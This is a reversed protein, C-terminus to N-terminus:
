LLSTMLINISGTRFLLICSYSVQLHLELERLIISQMGTNINVDPLEAKKPCGHQPKDIQSNSSAMNVVSKAMKTIVECHYFLNM